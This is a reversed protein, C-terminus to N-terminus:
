SWKLLNFNMQYVDEVKSKKVDTQIEKLFTFFKQRIKENVKKDCTFMVSFSYFDEENLSNMKNIAFQNMLNRYNMYISSDKSLHLNDAVVVYKKNEVKLIGWDVLKALYKSVVLKSLNLSDSIKSIDTAYKEITLFMHILSFYPDLHYEEKIQNGLVVNELAIMKETKSSESKQKEIKKSLALKREQIDTTDSLYLLELFDTKADPLRLRMKIFQQALFFQDPSLHGDKNLVKSLYTKQVHCHNALKEFTLSPILKKNQNVLEKIAHKYNTFEYINM